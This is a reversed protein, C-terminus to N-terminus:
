CLVIKEVSSQLPIMKKLKIMRCLVVKFFSLILDRLFLAELSELLKHSFILNLPESSM